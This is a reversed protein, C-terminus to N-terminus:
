GAVAGGNSGVRGQELYIRLLAEIRQNIKDYGNEFRSIAARNPEGKVLYGMRKALEAQTMGAQTRLQRLEEGTMIKCGLSNKM